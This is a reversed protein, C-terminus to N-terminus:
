NAGFCYPRCGTPEPGTVLALAYTSDEDSSTSAARAFYVGGQDLVLQGIDGAAIPPGLSGGSADLIALTAGAGGLQALTFTLIAGPATVFRYVDVDSGDARFYGSFCTAPVEIAGTPTPPADAQSSDGRLAPAAVGLEFEYMGLSAAEWPAEDPLAGLLTPVAGVALTTAFEGDALGGVATSAGAGFGVQMAHATQFSAKACGLPPGAPFVFWDADEFTLNGHYAGHAVPMAASPEGGADGGSAADDLVGPSPLAWAAPVVLLAVFFPLTKTRDL